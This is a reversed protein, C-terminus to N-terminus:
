FVFRKKDKKKIGKILKIEEDILELIKILKNKPIETIGKTISLQSLLNYLDCVAENFKNRRIQVEENNVPYISNAGKVNEHCSTALKVLNQSIYFTYRKPIKVALKVVEVQLDYAKNLFELSSVSRNSKLVSM